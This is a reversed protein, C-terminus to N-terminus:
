SGLDQHRGRPGWGFGRTRRVLLTSPGLGAPTMMWPVSCKGAAEDFGIRYQQGFRERLNICTPTM